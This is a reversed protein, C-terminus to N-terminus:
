AERRHGRGRDGAETGHREGADDEHHRLGALQAIAVSMGVPAVEALALRLRTLQRTGRGPHPLHRDAHVVLVIRRHGADPLQPPRHGLQVVTQVPASLARLVALVVDADAPSAAGREGAGDRRQPLDVEAVEQGVVRGVFLQEVDELEEGRDRDQEVPALAVVETGVVQALLDGPAAERRDQEGIGAVGRAAHDGVLLQGAPDRHGALEAARKEDVLEVRVVDPPFGRSPM